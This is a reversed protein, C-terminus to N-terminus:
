AAPTAREPIRQTKMKRKPPATPPSVAAPSDGAPGAVLLTALARRSKVGTVNHLVAVLSSDQVDGLKRSATRTLMLWDHWDGLADQRRRLQAIFRDSQASKSAFEAVYRARKMLIRYQHLMEESPAEGPRPGQELMRRAAALPDPAHKLDLEKALKKLRRSVDNVTKRSLSKRLQKEHGARLEILSQVLQTKRRPQEPTKLSRLAAVQVDLDRVKGARKRIGELLKLLKKRNRSSDPVLDSVLTQVRRIGTRLSHVTEPKHRASVKSLDRELKDFVVRCREAAITMVILFQSVLSLTTVIVISFSV